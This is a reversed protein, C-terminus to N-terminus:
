LLCPSIDPFPSQPLQKETQAGEEQSKRLINLCNQLNQSQDYISHLFGVNYERWFLGFDEGKRRVRWIWLSQPSLNSEPKSNGTTFTNYDCRSHVYMYPSIISLEPMPDWVGYKEKSEATSQIAVQIALRGLRHAYYHHDTIFYYIENLKEWNLNMM